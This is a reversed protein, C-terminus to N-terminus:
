KEPYIQIKEFNFDGKNKFIALYNKGKVVIENFGESDMDMIKYEYSSGMPHYPIDLDLLKKEFSNNKLNKLLMLRHTNEGNQNKKMIGTDYIIEPFNDGNLDGVAMPYEEKPKYVSLDNAQVNHAYNGIISAGLLFIGLIPKKM